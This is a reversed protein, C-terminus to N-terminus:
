PTDVLPQWLEVRNGEPDTIWAFHGYSASEQKPDVPVNAARLQTLLAELDDVRYNIMARQTESGFHKSADPFLMWATQGTGAPLEDSWLFTAGGYDAMQIGLHQAYWAALAKPDRAKLFVGGIGTVRAM